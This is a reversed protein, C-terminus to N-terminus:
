KIIMMTCLHALPFFLGTLDALYQNVCCLLCGFFPFHCCDCDFFYEAKELPTPTFMTFFSFMSLMNLNCAHM